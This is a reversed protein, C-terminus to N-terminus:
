EKGAEGEYQVDILDQYAKIAGVYERDQLPDLGASMALIDKIDAIRGNLQSIVVQTVPHRKWDAFDQKNM